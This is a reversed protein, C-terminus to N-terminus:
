TSSWQRVGMFFGQVRGHQDQTRKAPVSTLVLGDVAPRLGQTPRSGGVRARGCEMGLERERKGNKM